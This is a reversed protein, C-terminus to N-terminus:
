VFVDYKLRYGKDVSIQHVQGPQAVIIKCGIPDKGDM